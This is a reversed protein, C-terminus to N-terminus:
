LSVSYYLVKEGPHPNEAVCKKKKSKSYKQRHHKLNSNLKQQAFMDSYVLLRCFMLIIRLPIKRGKVVPINEELISWNKLKKLQPSTCAYSIPRFNKSHRIGQSDPLISFYSFFNLLVIFLFGYHFAGHISVKPASQFVSLKLVLHRMCDGIKSLKFILLLMKSLVTLVQITGHLNALLKMHSTKLFSLFNHFKFFQLIFRLSVKDSLIEKLQNYMEIM